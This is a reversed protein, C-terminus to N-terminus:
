GVDHSGPGVSRRNRLRGGAARRSPQAIQDRQEPKRAEVRDDAQAEPNDMEVFGDDGVEDDGVGDAEARQQRTNGGVPQQWAHRPKRQLGDHDCRDADEGTELDRRRDDASLHRMHETRCADDRPVVVPRREQDRGDQEHAHRQEQLGHAHTRREFGFAALGGLRALGLCRRAKRQQLRLDFRM